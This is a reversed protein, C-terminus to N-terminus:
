EIEAPVEAEPNFDDEGELGEDEFGEDEGGEDEYDDEYEEERLKRENIGEVGFEEAPTSDKYKKTVSPVNKGDSGAKLGSYGSGEELKEGPERWWENLKRTYQRFGQAM